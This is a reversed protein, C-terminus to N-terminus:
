QRINRHFPKTQSHDYRIPSRSLNERIQSAILDSITRKHSYVANIVHGEKPLIGRLYNIAQGSLKYLLKSNEDYNIFDIDLLQHVLVNELVDEKYEMNSASIIDRRANEDELSQIYIERTQPRLSLSSCDLDFDLITVTKEESPQVSLRPIEIYGKVIEKTVEEYADEIIKDLQENM